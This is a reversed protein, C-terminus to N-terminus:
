SVKGLMMSCHGVRFGYSFGDSLDPMPGDRSHQRGHRVGRGTRHRIRLPLRQLREHDWWGGRATPTRTAVREAADEVRNKLQHATAARPAHQRTIEWGPFRDELGEPFPPQSPGPLPGMRRQAGRETDLQAAGRRRAGPTDVPLRHLGGAAAPLPAQIPASPPLQPCSPALLDFSALAVQENVGFSEDEGAGHMRGVAHVASADCEQQWVRVWVRQWV